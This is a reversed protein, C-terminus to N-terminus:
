GMGRVRRLVLQRALLIGLAGALLPLAGLKALGALVAFVLAFRLLQAGLARRGGGSTFLRVNWRLSGFHALGLLVGAALGLLATLAPGADAAVAETMRAADM